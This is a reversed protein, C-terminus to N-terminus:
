GLTLQQLLLRTQSRAGMGEGPQATQVSEGPLLGLQPLWLLAAALCCCPQKTGACMVSQKITTKQKKRNVNIMITLGDISM